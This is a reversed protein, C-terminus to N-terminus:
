PLLRFAVGAASSHIVGGGGVATGYLYGQNFLLGGFPGDGDTSQFKHLVTENGSPSLKFVVGCGISQGLFTCSSGLDGGESTTGYLNGKTDRIVGAKPLGGDAAGTFTYLVSQVGAPDIKFVVGCGTGNSLGCSLDGGGNTTGYLNGGSDLTLGGYVPNAGDTGGTFSHLVTENGAQDLKFVVGCGISCSGVGGWETTGYFNGAADRVLPAVPGFGDALGTFTYLAAVHGSPALKFVVGCGGFACVGTLIGGGDATGYLNGLRDRIVGGFPYSGDSQGKFAHLIIYKGQPGLKFVVGCGIDGCNPYGGVRTTGYINGAVDLILGGVPYGGDLNGSFNRLVKEGGTAPLEFVIGFDFLGGYQTTGYLNGASDATLGPYPSYGDKAETSFVHLVSFGQAVAPSATILPLLVVGLAVAAKLAVKGQKAVSVLNNRM